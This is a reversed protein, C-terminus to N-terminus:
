KKSLLTTFKCFFLLPCRIVKYNMPKPNKPPDRQGDEGLCGLTWSTTWSICTAWELHESRPLPLLGELGHDKPAEAQEVKELRGAASPAAPARGGRAPAAWGQEATCTEWSPEQVPEEPGWTLINPGWSPECCTMKLAIKCIGWPIKCFDLSSFPIIQDM